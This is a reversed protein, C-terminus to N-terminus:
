RERNAASADVLFADESRLTAENRLLRRALDPKVTVAGVGIQLLAHLDEHSRVSAVLLRCDTNSAGYRDLVSQMERVRGLGDMGADNMRGLYPAIYRAGCVHALVVQELEFAATVTCPVGQESLRGVAELGAETAPIKVYIHGIDLLLEAM